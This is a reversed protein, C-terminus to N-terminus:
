LGQFPDTDRRQRLIEAAEDATPYHWGKNTACVPGYGAAISRDDTLLPDRGHALCVICSGTAAGFAAAERETIEHADNRAFATRIREIGAKGTYTFAQGAREATKSALHGNRTRYVVVMALGTVYLGEGVNVAPVGAVVPAGKAALSDVYVWQKDSLTGRTDYQSILSAAFTMDRATLSALATRLAEVRAANPDGARVQQVAVQDVQELVGLLAPVVNTAAVQDGALAALVQPEIAAVTAELTSTDALTAAHAEVLNVLGVVQATYSGACTACVSHWTGVGDVGAFATSDIPTACYRCLIASGDRRTTFRAQIVRRYQSAIANSM